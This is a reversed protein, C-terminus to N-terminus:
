RPLDINHNIALFLAVYAKLEATSIIPEFPVDHKGPEIRMQVQSKVMSATITELLYDIIFFQFFFNVTKEGGPNNNKTPWHTADSNIVLIEKALKM